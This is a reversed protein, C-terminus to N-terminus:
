KHSYVNKSKLTASELKMTLERLSNGGRGDAPTEKEPLTDHIIARLKHMYDTLEFENHVDTLRAHIWILFDRDKM